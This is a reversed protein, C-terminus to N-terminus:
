IYIYILLILYNYVSYPQYANQPDKGEDLNKFYTQWSADVRYIFYFKMDKYSNPDAKWQRYLEEMFIVSSGSLFSESPNIKTTISRMFMTSM